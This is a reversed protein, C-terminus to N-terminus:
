GELCYCHSGLETNDTVIVPLVQIGLGVLLLSAGSVPANLLPWTCVARWWQGCTLLSRLGTTDHSAACPITVFVTLEGLYPAKPLPSSHVPFRLGM